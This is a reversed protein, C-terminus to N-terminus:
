GFASLMRKVIDHGSTANARAAYTPDLYEGSDRDKQLYANRMFFSMPDSTPAPAEAPRPAPMPVKDPVTVSNLSNLNLPQGPDQGKVANSLLQALSPGQMSQPVQPGFGFQPLNPLQRPAPAVPATNGAAQGLMDDAMGSVGPMAPAPAAPHKAQYDAIVQKWDRGGPAKNMLSGAGFAPAGFAASFLSFPNM